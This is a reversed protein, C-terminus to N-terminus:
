IFFLYFIYRLYYAFYEEYTIDNEHIYTAIKEGIYRYHWSEFQYGTIYEKGKPYRM